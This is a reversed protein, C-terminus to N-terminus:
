PSCVLTLTACDTEDSGDRCQMYGNCRPDSADNRYTVTSGDSCDFSPCGAEDAGNACTSYGDCRYWDYYFGSGDGCAIGTQGPCAQEDSGDPCNWGGDCRAGPVRSGDNCVLDFECDREDEGEMCQRVGDCLRDPGVLSGDDCRFACREDCAVLLELMTRCLGTELQECSAEALCREYCADPAYLGSLVYRGVEGSSLVGCERLRSALVDGQAPACAGLAACFAFTLGLSIRLTLRSRASRGTEHAIRLDHLPMSHM